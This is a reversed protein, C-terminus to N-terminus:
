THVTGGIAEFDKVLQDWDFGSPAKGSAQAISDLSLVTHVEGGAASGANASLAGYTLTGIMGWTDVQIGTDDFGCGVVCHGNNPNPTDSAWIFGPSQVNVWSDPLEIGFFLNEFLWMATQVEAINTPDVVLSGAIKHNGDGTLGNQVWYNLATIEDCGNDTNPNGPVYGGIAGYLAIIQDDTLVLPTGDANACFLGALHAMGAIVCDGLSDNLYMQSLPDVAKVTYDVTNPLQAGLGSLPLMYRALRLRPGHAIPRNRGFRKM